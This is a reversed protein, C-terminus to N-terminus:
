GIMRKLWEKLVPDAIYLGEKRATILERELLTTKIRAINSYSGLNYEDRIAGRGFDNHIDALIAKLFNLQYETLRSTQEIFVNSTEDLLENIATQLEQETTEQETNLLTLWALHQVYSSQNEVATCLQTIREATIHKGNQEFRNQIYPIWTETPIVDLHILDGFKYFPYSSKLFLNEMLHKQSGFLCYSVNQQHQWVTRMRRQITLSDEFEGIQQFEDICVIIHVGKKQAITEPLQLIEEPKHTKPSIGLTVSYENTPDIKFSVKPTLRLMFDTVLHKWEEFRSETQHLIEESFKNYFEYESRCSFIDMFIILIKDTSITSRVKNVLSTKGLRRPSMLITNIGNEFNARLRLIEKERGIFYDDKVATGFIFPKQM